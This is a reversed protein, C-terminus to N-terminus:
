YKNIIRSLAVSRKKKIQTSLQKFKKAETNPRPYFKSLNVKDPKTKQLIDVTKQFDEETETPFGVIIDTALYVDPVAKRVKKVLEEYIKIKYPRNMDKLVKDSGSEVPLHIFKMIKPSKFIEILDDIMKELEDM